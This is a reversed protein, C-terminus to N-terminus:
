RGAAIGDALRRLPMAPRVGNLFHDGVGHYRWQNADHITHTRANRWHRDLDLSADAASSGLLAFLDNVIEMAVDEAFAKAEWVAVAIEAARDADVPADQDFLRAARLVLAESAHFRARLRGLSHLVHPDQQASAVAAALRPRSRQLLASRLDALANESIGIEIVAHLLSGLAHLTNPREFLKYHPIVHETPVAVDTFTSTGSFTVRQGMANWDPSVAVGPAHRPVYALVSRGAEDIASVPIWDAVLAGTCYYKVGHLRYGGDGDPVLRTRLDLASPGGREAQANGFRAGALLQSFFFAQQDPSADQAIAEVFVFHNQPLQGVASDAASLIQFVQVLTEVSVQAGGHSRPVTIALLGSASLLEMEATPIRRERDRDIAGPELLRAVERAVALAEEDSAIVRQAAKPAGLDPRTM